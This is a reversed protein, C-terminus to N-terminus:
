LLIHVCKAKINKIITRYLINNQDSLKDPLKEFLKVLDDTSWRPRPEFIAIKAIFILIKKRNNQEVSKYYGIPKIYEAIAGCEEFIERISSQIINENENSKSKPFKWSQNISDFYMVLKEEFIPVIVSNEYKLFDINKDFNFELEPFNINKGYVKNKM